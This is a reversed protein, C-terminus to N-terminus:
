ESEKLIDSYKLVAQSITRHLEMWDYHYAYAEIAIAKQHLENLKQLRTSLFLTEDHNLKTRAM